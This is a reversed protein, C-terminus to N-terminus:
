ARRRRPRKIERCYLELRHRVVEFGLEAAIKAQLQEIKDSHFEVVEGTDINIIHDHHRQDAPEFRSPAGEFSHRHIVGRRELASMTRYVTSLSATKDVQQVRRHIENADPHDSAEAIVALIALRQRTIRVGEARLAAELTMAPTASM